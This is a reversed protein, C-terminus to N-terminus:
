RVFLPLHLLQLARELVSVRLCVLRRLQHRPVFPPSFHGVAAQLRDSVPQDCLQM